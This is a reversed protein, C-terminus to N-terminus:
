RSLDGLISLSILMMADADKNRHSLDPKSLLRVPLWGRALREATAARLRDQGIRTSASSSRMAREVMTTLSTASLSNWAGVVVTATKCFGLAFILRSSAMLMALLEFPGSVM